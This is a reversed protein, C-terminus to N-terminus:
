LCTLFAFVIVYGARKGVTAECEDRNEGLVYRSPRHKDFCPGTKPLCQARKRSMSLGQSHMPPKAASCEASMSIRTSGQTSLVAPIRSLRM